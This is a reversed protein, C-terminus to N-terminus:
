NELDSPSPVDTPPAAPPGAVSRSAAKIKRKTLKMVAVMIIAEAMKGDAWRREFTKRAARTPLPLVKYVRSSEVKFRKSLALLYMPDHVTEDPLEPDGVTRVMDFVAEMMSLVARKQTATLKARKM